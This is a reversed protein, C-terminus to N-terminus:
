FIANINYNISILCKQQIFKKISDIYMDNIDM